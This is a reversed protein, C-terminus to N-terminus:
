ITGSAKESARMTEILANLADTVTFIGLYEGSEAYVLVSGIKRESMNFAVEDLPTDALVSVPDAAMIDGAMVQNRREASLGLAVRLDRDSVVGVVGGDRVVPLHRVGNKEMLELMEDISATEPVTVPDPTTFEEVPVNLKM